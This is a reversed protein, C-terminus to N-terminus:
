PTVRWSVSRSLEVGNGWVPHPDVARLKQKLKDKIDKPDVVQPFLRSPRSPQELHLVVRVKGANCAAKAQDVEQRVGSNSATAMLCALTDRVKTALEDFLDSPKSRPYARYDKLEILWLVPDAGPSIAAFDISKAGNAFSQFQNRYYSADDCKWATWGVPFEHVLRGDTLRTM